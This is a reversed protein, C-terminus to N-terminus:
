FHACPTPGAWSHEKSSSRARSSAGAYSGTEMDADGPFEGISAATNEPFERHEELTCSVLTDGYGCPPVFPKMAPNLGSPTAACKKCLHAAKKKRRRRCFRSYDAMPLEDRWKTFPPLTNALTTGQPKDM